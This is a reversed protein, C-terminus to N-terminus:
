REVLVLWFSYTSAFHLHVRPHAVLSPYIAPLKPERRRPPSETTDM